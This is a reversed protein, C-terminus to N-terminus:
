PRGTAGLVTVVALVVVTYVAIAGLRKWNM